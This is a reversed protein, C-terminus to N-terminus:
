LNIADIIRETTSTPDDANLITGSIAIGSAGCEIIERIDEVGIGGIAVIPTTYGMKKIYATAKIYGELGLVPSLREKTSTFRFPGYGIYDVGQSILREIDEITNATGGIIMEEGLLERAEAPTIDEKGLHVGDAECEEVLHARDNLIFTAGRKDCEERLIKAKEVFEEDSAGKMRLQVWSCGGNLAAIAGDVECRVGNNHTIYQLSFNSCMKAMKTVAAVRSSVGEVTCDGWAYGLLAVGGFGLKHLTPIKDPTVGGLAIVMNDIVREKGAKELEEMTFNAVYRGKSISDFIPSLFNYSLRDGNQLEEISHCSRSVIEACCEGASTNRSNLNIGGVGLEDALRFHDHLSLRQRLFPPIEEILAKAQEASWEPKRIHVREAGSSLAAMILEAEREVVDPRTIVIVKM